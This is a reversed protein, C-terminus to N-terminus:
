KNLTKKVLWDYYLKRPLSDRVVDKYNAELKILRDGNNYQLKFHCLDFFKDISKKFKCINNMTFERKKTEREVVNGNKNMMFPIEKGHIIIPFWEYKLNCWERIEDYEYLKDYKLYENMLLDFSDKRINKSTFVFCNQMDELTGIGISIYENEDDYTGHDFWNNKIKRTEGDKMKLTIERGAFANGCSDYKLYWNFLNQEDTGILSKGKEEFTLEPIEDVIIGLSRNGYMKNFEAVKLIKV